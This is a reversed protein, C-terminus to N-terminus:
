TFRLDAQKDTNFIGSATLTFRKMYWYILKMFGSIVPISNLPYRHYSVMLPLKM